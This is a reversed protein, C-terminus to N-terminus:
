RGRRHADGWRRCQALEDEWFADRNGFAPGNVRASLDDKYPVMLGDVDYILGVLQEAARRAYFCASRPDSASATIAFSLGIM